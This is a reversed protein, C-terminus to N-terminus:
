PEETTSNSGSDYGGIVDDHSSTGTEIAQQREVERTVDYIHWVFSGDRVIGMYVADRPIAHGTGFVQFYHHLEDDIDSPIVECWVTVGYENGEWTMASHMLKAPLRHPRDNIPLEYKWISKSM